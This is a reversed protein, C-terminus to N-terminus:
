PVVLAFTITHNDSGIGQSALAVGTYKLTCSGNATRGIGTILDKATTSLTVEPAAAGQSLSVALLKLVYKPAGLNTSVTIKKNSSNLAWSLSTTQDVSTMQDQGAVVGTGDINLIVAGGNVRLLTITNVHVTVHHSLPWSQANVSRLPALVVLLLASLLLTKKLSTFKRFSTLARTM